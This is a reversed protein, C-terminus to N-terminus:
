AVMREILLRKIRAPNISDVRTDSFRDRVGAENLLVRSKSALRREKSGNEDDIM